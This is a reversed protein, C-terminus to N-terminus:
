AMGAPFTARTAPGGVALVGLLTAGAVAVLLALRRSGRKRILDEIRVMRAERAEALRPPASPSVARTENATERRSVIELRSEL